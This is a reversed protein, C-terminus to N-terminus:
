EPAQLRDRVELASQVLRLAGFFVKNFGSSRLNELVLSTERPLAEEEEQPLSKGLSLIVGYHTMPSSPPLFPCFSPDVSSMKGKFGLSPLAKGLIPCPFVKSLFVVLTERVSGQQGPVQCEWPSFCYYCWCVM